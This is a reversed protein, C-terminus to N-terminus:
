TGCSACRLSCHNSQSLPWLRLDEEDGGDGLDLPLDLGEELLPGVDGREVSGPDAGFRHGLRRDLPDDGAAEGLEVAAAPVATDDDPVLHAGGLRSPEGRLPRARRPRQDHAM